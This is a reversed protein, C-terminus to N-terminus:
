DRSQATAHELTMRQMAAGIVRGYGPEQVFIVMRVNAPDIGPKLPVRIEQNFMQGPALSGIKTLSEVVAVHTLTRGRNEGRLVKSLVHDLALGLYIDAKRQVTNGNVEVRGDLNAPAGSEVKVAAISVPIKLDTAAKQLIPVIQQRDQLRLETTGDVIIQPTYAEHMGLAHVYGRQRATLAASAYPDAWGQQDWYDMHESLVILQAGAIPQSSDLQVVFADAPPCSSCGESTFLEVLVPSPVVAPADGSHALEISTGGLILCVIAILKM